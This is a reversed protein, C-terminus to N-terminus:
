RGWIRVEMLMLPEDRSMELSTLGRVATHPTGPLAWDLNNVGPPGFSLSAGIPGFLTRAGELGPNTM